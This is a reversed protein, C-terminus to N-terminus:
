ARLRYIQVKEDEKGYKTLRINLVSFSLNVKVFPYSYVQKLRAISFDRSVLLELSEHYIFKSFDVTLLIM